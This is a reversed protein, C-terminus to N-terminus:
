HLLHIEFLIISQNLIRLLLNNHFFCAMMFMVYGFQVSPHLFKMSVTFLYTSCTDCVFCGVILNVPLSQIDVIM